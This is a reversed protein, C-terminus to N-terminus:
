FIWDYLYDFRRRRFYDYWPGILDGYINANWVLYSGIISWCEGAVYELLEGLLHSELM